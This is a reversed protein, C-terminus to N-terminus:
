ITPAAVGVAASPCLWAGQDSESEAAGGSAPTLATYCPSSSCRSRGDFRSHPAVERWVAPSFPRRAYSRCESMARLGPSDATCSALHPYRGCRVTGAGEDVPASAGAEGSLPRGHAGLLPISGREADNLSRLPRGHGRQLSPLLPSCEQRHLWVIEHRSTRSFYEMHQLIQITDVGTLDIRPLPASRRHGRGHGAAAAIPPSSLPPACAACGQASLNGPFLAALVGVAEWYSSLVLSRGINMSVGSGPAVYLWMPCLKWRPGRRARAACHTVEVWSHNRLPAATRVGALHDRYRHAGGAREGGATRRHGAGELWLADKPNAQVDITSM